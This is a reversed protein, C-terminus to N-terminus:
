EEDLTKKAKSQAREAKYRDPNFHYDEDVSPVGTAVYNLVDIVWSAERHVWLFLPSDMGVHPPSETEKRELATLCRLAGKRMLLAAMREERRITEDRDEKEGKRPKIRESRTILASVLRDIREETFVLNQQDPPWTEILWMMDELAKMVRKRLDSDRKRDGGSVPAFYSGARRTSQYRRAQEKAWNRDKERLM